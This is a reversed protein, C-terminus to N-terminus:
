KVMRARRTSLCPWGRQVRFWCPIRHSAQQSAQPYSSFLLFCFCCRCCWMRTTTTTKMMVVVVAGTKERNYNALLLLSSWLAFTTRIRKFTTTTTTSLKCNSQANSQPFGEGGRARERERECEEGRRRWFVNWQPIHYTSEMWQFVNSDWIELSNPVACLFQKRLCFSLFIKKSENSMVYTIAIDRMAFTWIPFHEVLIGWFFSSFSLKYTVKWFKGKYNWDGEVVFKGKLTSFPSNKVYPLSCTKPEEQAQPSVQWLSGAGVSSGEGEKTYPNMKNGEKTYPNMKNGEKTYPNM